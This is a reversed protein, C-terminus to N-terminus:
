GLRGSTKSMTMFLPSPQNRPLHYFIRHCSIGNILHHDFQTNDVYDKADADAIFDVLKLVNRVSLGLSLFSTKIIV